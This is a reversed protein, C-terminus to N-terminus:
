EMAGRVSVGTTFPFTAGLEGELDEPKGAQRAVPRSHSEMYSSRADEKSKEAVCTSSYDEKFEEVCNHRTATRVIISDINKCRFLFHWSCVTGKQFKDIWMIEHDGNRIEAPAESPAIRGTL